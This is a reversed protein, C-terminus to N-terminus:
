APSVPIVRQSIPASRLLEPIYAEAGKKFAEIFIFALPMILFISLFLLVASILVWKVVPSERIERKPVATKATELQM